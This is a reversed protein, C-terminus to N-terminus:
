DVGSFFELSDDIQGYSLQHGVGYEEYIVDIGLYRAANYFAQAKPIRSTDQNGVTVFFAVDVYEEPIVTGGSGHAACAACLDPQWVCFRLSFQAGASFGFLYWDSFTIGNDLEVQEVIDILADGSWVWPYQYSQQSDWNREDFQFSPAVVAFGNEAAFDRMSQSVFNEGHGSLGPVAILLPYSVAADYIVSSPIYYYYELTENAYNDTQISAVGYVADTDIAVNGACGALVAFVC